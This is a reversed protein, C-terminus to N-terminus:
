TTMIVDNIVIILNKILQQTIQSGLQKYLNLDNTEESHGIENRIYTFCDEEFEEGKKRTQKFYLFTYKDKNNELYKIVSKQSAYPRIGQLLEMLFQYLSMFQAINNPNHLTKFIREYKIFNEKINTPSNIIKDYIPKAPSNHIIKFSDHVEIDEKITMPKNNEHILNICYVPMTYCVETKIILNFCIHYLYNEIEKEHGTYTINDRLEVYISQLNDDISMSKILENDMIYKQNDSLNLNDFGYLNCILYNPSKTNINVESKNM